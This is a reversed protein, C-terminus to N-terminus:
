TLGLLEVSSRAVCVCVCLSVVDGSFACFLLSLGFIIGFTGGDFNLLVMLVISSVSLVSFFFFFCWWYLHLFVVTSWFARFRHTHTYIHTYTQVESGHGLSALDEKKRECCGKYRLIRSQGFM